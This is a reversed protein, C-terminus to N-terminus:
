LDKGVVKLINDIPNVPIGNLDFERKFSDYIKVPKISHAPILYADGMEEIQIDFEDYHLCFTDQLGASWEYLRIPEPLKKMIKVFTVTQHETM